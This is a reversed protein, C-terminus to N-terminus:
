VSGIPVAPVALRMSRYFTKGITSIFKLFITKFKGTFVCFIQLGKFSTFYGSLFSIFITLTGIGLGLYCKKFLNMLIEIMTLDLNILEDLSYKILFIDIM